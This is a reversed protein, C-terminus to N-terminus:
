WIQNPIWIKHLDQKAEEYIINAYIRRYLYIFVSVRKNAICYVFVEKNINLEM